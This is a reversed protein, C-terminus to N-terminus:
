KVGLIEKIKAVSEKVKAEDVAGKVLEDLIVLIATFKAKNNRWVFFLIVLAVLFGGVAAILTNIM